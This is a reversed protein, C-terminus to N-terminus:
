DVMVVMQNVLTGLGLDRRGIKSILLKEIELSENNELNEYLKISIIEGGSNKIKNIKNVKFPSEKDYLSSKIRNGTGKGVYFPEYDFEFYDFKYIGPKSKDLFVYIYYKKM